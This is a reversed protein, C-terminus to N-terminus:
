RWLCWPCAQEARPADGCFLARDSRAPRPPQSVSLRASARVRPREGIRSSACRRSWGRRPPARVHAMRPNPRPQLADLAPASCPAGARATASGGAAPIMALPEPAEVHRGLAAVPYPIVTGAPPRCDRGCAAPIPRRVPRRTQKWGRVGVVTGPTVSPPERRLFHSRIPASAPLRHFGCFVVPPPPPSTRRRRRLPYVSPGSCRRRSPPVGRWRRTLGGAPGTWRASSSRSSSPV